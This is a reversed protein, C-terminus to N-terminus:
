IIRGNKSNKEAIIAYGDVPKGSRGAELSANLGAVDILEGVNVIDSVAENSKAFTKKLNDIGKQTENAAKAIVNVTDILRNIEQTNDEVMQNLYQISEYTEATTNCINASNGSIDHAIRLSEQSGIVAKELSKGGNDIAKQIQLSMGAFDEVVSAMDASLSVLKGSKRLHRALARDRSKGLSAKKALENEPEKEVTSETTKSYRDTKHTKM